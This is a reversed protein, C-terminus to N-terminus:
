GHMAGRLKKPYYDDDGRLPIDSIKRVKRAANLEAQGRSTIRKARTLFGWKECKEIIKACEQLSLGTAFSIAVQRRQGKAILALVLLVAQGSKGRRSLAGSLALKKQGVDLLTLVADRRAIEPPFVSKEPSLVVRDPFLPKWPKKPHSPAWLIPPCNDPCSHEFVLAAMASGYGDWYYGYSTQNGYRKCLDFVLDKQVKGWPMASFTPCPREIIVDAMRKLRRVRTIGRETGSYALSVPRVYKLSCWSEFTKDKRLASLFESTREGSGIFDDVLYVIRCKAQRMDEITPHNLIRKPDTKALNRIVAAVRAESGHDSGSSLASIAGTIPDHAQLFYSIDSVVERVAYFAVSECQAAIEREMLVQLSREFESHSVLTLSKVVREATERDSPNFQDLWIKGRETYLLSRAELHKSATNM